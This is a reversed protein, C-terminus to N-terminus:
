LSRTTVKTVTSVSKLEAVFFEKDPNISALREAEAKAATYHPHRVTPAKGGFCLVVFKDSNSQNMQKEKILKLNGEILPLLYSGELGNDWRVDVQEVQEYRSHKRYNTYRKSHGIVKGYSGNLSSRPRINQVMSGIPWEQEVRPVSKVTVEKTTVFTIDSLCSANAKKLWMTVRKGILNSFM